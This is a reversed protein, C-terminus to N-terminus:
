QVPGRGQRAGADQVVTLYVQPRHSSRRHRTVVGAGACLADHQQTGDQALRPSLDHAGLVEAGRRRLTAVASAPAARWPPLGTRWCVARDGSRRSRSLWWIALRKRSPGFFVESRPLRKHGRCSEFRRGAKPSGALRGLRLGSLPESSTIHRWEAGGSVVAHRPDVSWAGVV